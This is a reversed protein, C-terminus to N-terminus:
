QCENKIPSEYCKLKMFKQQPPSESSLLKKLMEKKFAAVPYYEEHRDKKTKQAVGRVSPYGHIHIFKLL